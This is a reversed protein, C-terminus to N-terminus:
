DASFMGPIGERYDANVGHTVFRTPLQAHHFLHQWDVDINFADVDAGVTYSKAQLATIQTFMADGALHLQMPGFVATARLGAQTTDATGEFAVFKYGMMPNWGWHMDPRNLPHDQALQTPDLHNTTSDLGVAFRIGAYMGAPVSPLTVLVHGESSLGDVVFGPHDIALETGDPRVLRVKSVIFKAVSIRLGRGNTSDVYFTDTTNIHAHATKGHGAGAWLNHFRLRLAFSQPTPAPTSGDDDSNKCAGLVLTTAVVALLLSKSVLKV